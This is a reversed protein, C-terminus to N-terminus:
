FEDEDDSTDTTTDSETTLLEAEDIEVENELGDDFVGEQEEEENQDEDMANKEIYGIHKYTKRILESSVKDFSDVVWEYVDDREPTPFKDKDL